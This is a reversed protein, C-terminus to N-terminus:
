LKKIKNLDSEIFEMDETYIPRHEKPLLKEVVTLRREARRFNVDHKIMLDILRDIKKELAEM